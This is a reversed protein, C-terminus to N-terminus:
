FRDYVTGKLVTNGLPNAGLNKQKFDVTQEEFKEQSNFNGRKMSSCQSSNQYSEICLVNHKKPSRFPDDLKSMLSM